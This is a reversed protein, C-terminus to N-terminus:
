RKQLMRRLFQLLGARRGAPVLPADRLLALLPGLLPGTVDFPEDALDGWQGARTQEFAPPLPDSGHLVRRGLTAAVAMARPAPWFM